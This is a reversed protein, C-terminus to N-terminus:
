EELLWYMQFLMTPTVETDEFESIKIPYLNVEVEANRHDNVEEPTMGQEAADWENAYKRIAMLNDIISSAVAKPLELQAAQNFSLGSHLIEFRKLTYAKTESGPTVDIFLEGLMAINDPVIKEVNTFDAPYSLIVESKLDVEENLVENVSQQYQQSDEASLFKGQDDAHKKSLEINVQQWADLHLQAKKLFGAVRFSKVPSLKLGSVYQFANTSSLLQGLKM